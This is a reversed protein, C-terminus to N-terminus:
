LSETEFYTVVGEGMVNVSFSSLDKSSFHAPFHVRRIGNTCRNCGHLIM